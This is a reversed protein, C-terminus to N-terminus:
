GARWSEPAFADERIFRGLIRRRKRSAIRRPSAESSAPRGTFMLHKQM